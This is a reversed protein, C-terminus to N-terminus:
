PGAASPILISNREQRSAASHGALPPDAAEKGQVQWLCAGSVPTRCNFSPPRVHVRVM